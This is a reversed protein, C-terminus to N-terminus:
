VRHFPQVKEDNISGRASIKSEPPIEQLIQASAYLDPQLHCLLDLSSLM